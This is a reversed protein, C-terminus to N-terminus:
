AIISRWPRPPQQPYMLIRPEVVHWLGRATRYVETRQNLKQRTREPSDCPSEPAHSHLSYRQPRDEDIIRILGDSAAVASVALNAILERVKSEDEEQMIVLVCENWLEDQEAIAGYQSAGERIADITQLHNEPSPTALLSRALQNLNNDEGPVHYPM